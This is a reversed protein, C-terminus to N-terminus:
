FDTYEGKQRNFKGHLATQIVREHKRWHVLEFRIFPAGVHAAAEVIIAPHLIAAVNL